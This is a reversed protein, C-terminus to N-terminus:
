LAMMYVNIEKQFFNEVGSNWASQILQTDDM